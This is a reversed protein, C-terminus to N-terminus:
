TSHQGDFPVELAKLPELRKLPLITAKSFVGSSCLFVLWGRTYLPSQGIRFEFRPVMPRLYFHNNDAEMSSSVQDSVGDKGSRDTARLLLVEELPFRYAEREHLFGKCSDDSSAAAITFYANWYYAGMRPAERTWDEASKQIICIADVWLYRVGFSRTVLIADQITQPLEVVDMDQLREAYNQETTCAVANGSGWCYSLALYKNVLDEEESAVYLKLVDEGGDSVQILRTPTATINPIGAFNPLTSEKTESSIEIWPNLVEDVLQRMSKKLDFFALRPM